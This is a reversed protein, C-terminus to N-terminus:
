PHNCSMDGEQCDRQAKLEKIRELTHDNKCETVIMSNISGGETLATAFSCQDIMYRYWSKQSTRLLGRNKADYKGSLATYLAAMELYNKKFVTGACSDMEITTNATKCGAPVPASWGLIPDNLVPDIGGAMVPVVALVFAASAVATWYRM